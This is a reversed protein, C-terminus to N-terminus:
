TLPPAHSNPLNISGAAPTELGLAVKTADRSLWVLSPAAFVVDSRPEILVSEETVLCRVIEKVPLTVIIRTGGDDRPSAPIPGTSPLLFLLSALANLFM